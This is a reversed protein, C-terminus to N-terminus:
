ILIFKQNFFHSPNSFRPSYVSLDISENGLETVVDMCDGNYISYNEEHIQEKVKM